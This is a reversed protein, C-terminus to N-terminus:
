PSGLLKQMEAAGANVMALAAEDRTAAFGPAFFPHPAVQGTAAQRRRNLTRAYLAKGRYTGIRRSRPVIRHGREVWKAYYADKSAALKRKAGSRRNGQRATVIYDAQDENSQERVFKIIIAAKLTGPAILQRGRRRLTTGVPARAKVGAKVIKAGASAMRRLVRKGAERPVTAFYRKLEDLGRVHILGAAM